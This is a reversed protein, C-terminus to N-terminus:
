TTEPAALIYESGPFPAGFAGDDYGGHVEYDVGGVVVLDPRPGGATATQLQDFTFCAFRARSQLGPPLDRLARADLPQVTAWTTFTTVAGPQTVYNVPPGEPASRKVIYQRSFPPRRTM